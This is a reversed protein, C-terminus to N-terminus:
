ATKQWAGYMGLLSSTVGALGIIGDDLNVYGLITSPVTLDCLDSILQINVTQQQRAIKVKEVKAEADKEDVARAHQRLKYTNYIGALASAVLGTFWFRYATAQISKARPDKKVGMADLLTMMDFFMYGAYGIQRLIQLYQVIKDGNGSKVAADYLESGARIHEVFKGVRLIKRTLGFQNKIATWPLIASTPNNTRYLYWAYFRSFYQITRLVKDRGVTTAVYRLYHTVAPHYVLADAVM